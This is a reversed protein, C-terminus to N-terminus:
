AGPNAGYLDSPAGSHPVIEGTNVHFSIDHLAHIAGYYVNLNEVSLM